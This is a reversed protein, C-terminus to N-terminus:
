FSGNDDEKTSNYIPNITLWGRQMWSRLINELKAIILAETTKTNHAHLFEQMGVSLEQELEEPTKKDFVWLPPPPDYIFSIHSGLYDEKIIHVTIHTTSYLNSYYQSNIL